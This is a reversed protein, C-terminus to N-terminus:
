KPIGTITFGAWYYPNKYPPKNGLLKRLFKAERELPRLKREM